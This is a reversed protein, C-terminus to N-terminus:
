VGAGSSLSAFLLTRGDPSLEPHRHSWEGAESDITTLQEPTGGDAPVVYLPSFYGSAFVIRGDPGWSAGM